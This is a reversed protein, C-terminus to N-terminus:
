RASSGAVPGCAVIPGAPAPTPRQLKQLSLAAGEFRGTPASPSTSGAATMKRGPAQFLRTRAASALWADYLRM